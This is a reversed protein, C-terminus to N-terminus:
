SLHQEFKVSHQSSIRLTNFSLILIDLSYHTITALRLRRLRSSPLPCTRLVGWGGAGLGGRTWTKSEGPDDDDVLSSLSLSLPSM